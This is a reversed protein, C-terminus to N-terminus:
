VLQNNNKMFLKSKRRSIGVSQGNTLRFEKLVKRFDYDEVYGVNVVQSRNARIFTQTDKLVNEFVSLTRSSLIKLGTNLHIMTYNTESELLVMDTTKINTLKGKYRIKIIGQAVNRRQAELFNDM